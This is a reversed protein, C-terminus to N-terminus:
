VLSYAPPQLELALRAPGAVAAAWSSSTAAAAAIAVVVTKKNKSGPPRGRRCAIPLTVEVVEKVKKESGLPRGRKCKEPAGAGGAGAGGASSM